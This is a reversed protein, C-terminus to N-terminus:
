EESGVGVAFLPHADIDDLNELAWCTAVRQPQLVARVILKISIANNRRAYSDGTLVDDDSLRRRDRRVIGFKALPLDLMDLAVRGRRQSACFAANDIRYDNRSVLVAHAVDFDPNSCGLDRLNAVLKRRTVSLLARDTDSVSLLIHRESSLTNNRIQDNVGVGDWRTHSNSVQDFTKERFNSRELAKFSIGRWKRINRDIRYGIEEALLSVLGSSELDHIVSVGALLQFGLHEEPWGVVLTQPVHHVVLDMGAGTPRDLDHGSLWDLTTGSITTEPETFHFTITHNSM